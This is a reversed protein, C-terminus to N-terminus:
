KINYTDLTGTKTPINYFVQRYGNDFLFTVKQRDTYNYQYQVQKIYRSKVIYKNYLCELLQAAVREGDLEASTVQKKDNYIESYMKASDSPANYQSLAEMIKNYKDRSVAKDYTSRDAVDIM